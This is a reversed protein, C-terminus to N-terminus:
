LHLKSEPPIALNSETAIEEREDSSLQKTRKRYFFLRGPPPSSYLCDLHVTATFLPAAPTSRLPDRVCCTQERRERERERHGPGV